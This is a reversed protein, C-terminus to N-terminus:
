VAKEQGPGWEFSAAKQTLRDIPWLSAGVHPMHQGLICVPESPM